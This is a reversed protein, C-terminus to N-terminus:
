PSLIELQDFISFTKIYYKQICSFSLSYGFFKVLNQGLSMFRLLLYLRLEKQSLPTPFSAEM